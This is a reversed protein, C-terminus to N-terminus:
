DRVIVGEVEPLESLAQAMRFVADSSTSTTRFLFVLKGQIRYRIQAFDANREQLDAIATALPAAERLPLHQVRTVPMMRHKSVPDTRDVMALPKTSTSSSPPGRDWPSSHLGAKSPTSASHAPTWSADSPAPPSKDDKNITLALRPQLAASARSKNCDPEIRLENRIATVGEMGRVMEVARNADRASPVPGWVTAVRDRVDVGLNLPALAPDKLFLKRAQFAIQWDRDDVANSPPGARACRSGALGLAVTFLLAISAPRWSRAPLGAIPNTGKGRTPRSNM